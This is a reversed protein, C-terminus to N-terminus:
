ELLPARQQHLIYVYFPLNFRLPYVPDHELPKANAKHAGYNKWQRFVFIFAYISLLWRFIIQYDQGRPFDWHVGREDCKRRLFNQWPYKANYQGPQDMRRRLFKHYGGGFHAPWHAGYYGGYAKEFDPISHTVFYEGRQYHEYLANHKEWNDGSDSVALEYNKIPETHSM